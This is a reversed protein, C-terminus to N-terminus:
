IEINHEDYPTEELNEAGFYLAMKEHIEIIKEKQTKVTEFEGTLGASDPFARNSIEQLPLDLSVASLNPKVDEGKLKKFVDKVEKANIIADFIAQDLMKNAAEDDPGDFSYVEKKPHARLIEKHKDNSLVINSFEQLTLDLDFNPHDNIMNKDNFFKLLVKVTHNNAASGIIAESLKTYAENLERDDM